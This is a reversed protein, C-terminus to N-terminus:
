EAVATLGSEETDDVQLFQALNLLDIVSRVADSPAAIRLEGGAERFRETLALLTGIGSSAVFPVDALNLVVRQAGNGNLAVCRETLMQSNKADLRGTVRLLIAKPRAIGEIAFQSAM